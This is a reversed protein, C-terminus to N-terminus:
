RLGGGGGPGRGVGGFAPPSPPVARARAHARACVHYHDINEAVHTNLGQLEEIHGSIYCMEGWCQPTLWAPAPNPGEQTEASGGGALLYRWQKATFPSPTSPPPPPPLPRLASPPPCVSASGTPRPASPPPRFLPASPRCQRHSPPPPPSVCM